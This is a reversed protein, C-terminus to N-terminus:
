GFEGLAGPRDRERRAAEFGENAHMRYSICLLKTEHTRPPPLGSVPRTQLWIGSNAGGDSWAAELHTNSLTFYLQQLSKLKVRVPEQYKATQSPLFKEVPAHGRLLCHPGILSIPQQM